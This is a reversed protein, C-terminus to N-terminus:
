DCVVVSGSSARVAPNSNKVDLCLALVVCQDLATLAGDAVGAAAAPVPPRPPAAGAEPAM